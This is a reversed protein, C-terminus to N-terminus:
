ETQGIGHIRTFIRSPLSGGMRIVGGMQSSAAPRRRGVWAQQVQPRSTAVIRSRVSCRRGCPHSGPRVSWMGAQHPQVVSYTGTGTRAPQHCSTGIQSGSWTAFGRRRNAGGSGGQLFHRAPRRSATRVVGTALPPAQTSRSPAGARGGAPELRRERRAASRAHRRDGPRAAGALPHHSVPPAAYEPSRSCSTRGIMFV